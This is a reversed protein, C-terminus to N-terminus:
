LAIKEAGPPLAEHVDRAHRRPNVVHIEFDGEPFREYLVDALQHLRREEEPAVPKVIVWVHVGDDGTSVRLESVHRAARVADALTQGVHQATMGMTITM